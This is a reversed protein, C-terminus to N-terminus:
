EFAERDDTTQADDAVSETALCSRSMTDAGM